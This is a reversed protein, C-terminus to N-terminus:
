SEALMRLMTEAHLMNGAPNPHAGDPTYHFPQERMLEAFPLVRVGTRRVVELQAQRLQGARLPTFRVNKTDTPQLEHILRIAIPMTPGFKRRLRKIVLIYREIYKDVWDSTLGAEPPVDENERQFKELDWLAANICILDYKVRSGLLPDILALRKIIDEPKADGAPTDHVGFHFLFDIRVEDPHTRAKLQFDAETSSIAFSSSNALRLSVFRTTHQSGSAPFEPIEKGSVPEYMRWNCTPLARGLEDIANRDTSDGLYLVRKGRLGELEEYSRQLVKAGAKNDLRRLGDKDGEDLARHQAVSNDRLARWLRITSQCIRAGSELRKETDCSYGEAAEARTEYVTEWGEATDFRLYGGPSFWASRSHNPPLSAHLHHPPRNHKQSSPHSLFFLITLFILSSGAIGLNRPSLNPKLIM